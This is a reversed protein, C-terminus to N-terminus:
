KKDNYHGFAYNTKMPVKNFALNLGCTLYKLATTFYGDKEFRRLPMYIKVSPIIGFRGYQTAQQVFYVDEALTVSEDFGKVKKFISKKVIIGMAGMPFLKKFVAQPINYFIDLTAPNMYINSKQPLIHFSAVGLDNDTFYNISRKVFNKPSFRVDADIFFLIDGKAQKAGNNRGKAPLGGPVVRCGFKKAIEVTKDTSGADAVIIEYDDYGGKKISSLLSPLSKEENLTPIIISLM